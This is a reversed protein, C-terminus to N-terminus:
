TVSHCCERSPLVYKAPNPVILAGGQCQVLRRGPLPFAAVQNRGPSPASQWFSACCAHAADLAQLGREVSQGKENTTSPLWAL